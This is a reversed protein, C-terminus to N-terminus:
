GSVSDTGVRGRLEEDGGAAIGLPEVTLSAENAARHPVAGTGAEEPFIVRCLSARPPSRAAFLARCVMASARIDEPWGGVLAKTARWRSGTWPLCRLLLSIRRISLRAMARSTKLCRVRGMATGAMSSRRSVRRALFMVM